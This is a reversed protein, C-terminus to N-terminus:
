VRLCCLEALGLSAPLVVGERSRGDASALSLKAPCGERVLGLTLPSLAIAVALACGLGALGCASASDEHGGAHLGAFAGVLVCLLAVVLFVRRRSLM